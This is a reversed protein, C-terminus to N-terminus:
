GTPGAFWTRFLSFAVLGLILVAGGVVLWRSAVPGLRSSGLKGALLSGLGGIMLLAWVPDPTFSAYIIMTAVGRM